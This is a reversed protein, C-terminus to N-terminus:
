PSGHNRENYEQGEHLSKLILKEAVNDLRLPLTKTIWKYICNLLCIPMYQQIKEAGQGKPLLTLQYKYSAQFIHMLGHLPKKTHRNTIM